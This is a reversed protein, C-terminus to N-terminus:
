SASNRAQMYFYKTEEKKYLSSYEEIGYSDNVITFRPKGNSRTRGMDAVKTNRLQNHYKIQTSFSKANEERGKNMYFIQSNRSNVPLREKSFSNLYDISETHKRSTPKMNASILNHGGSDYKTHSKSFLMSVVLVVLLLAVAFLLLYTIIPVIEM